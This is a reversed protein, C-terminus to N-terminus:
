LYSEIKAMSAELPADGAVVLIDPEYEYNEGAGGMDLYPAVFPLFYGPSANGM